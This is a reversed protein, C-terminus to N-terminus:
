VDYNFPKLEEKLTRVKAQPVQPRCDLIPTLKEEPVNPSRTLPLYELGRDVDTSAICILSLHTLNKLPELSGYFRNYIGAQVKEKKTGLTLLKLNTFPRVFDLTTPSFNNRALNLTKLKEPNSLQNLFDVSTLENANLFLTELNGIGTLNIKKLPTKLADGNIYIKELGVFERLDLEDGELNKWEKSDRM